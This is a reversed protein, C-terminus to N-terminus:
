FQNKGILMDMHMDKWRLVVRKNEIVAVKNIEKYKISKEKFVMMMVNM